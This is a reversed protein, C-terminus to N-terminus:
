KVKLIQHAPLFHKLAFIHDNRERAESKTWADLLFFVELAKFFAACIREPDLATTMWQTLKRFAHLGEWILSNQKQTIPRDTESM